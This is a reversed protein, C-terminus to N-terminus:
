QRQTTRRDLYKVMTDRFKPRVGNKFDEDTEELGTANLISEWSVMSMNRFQAMDQYMDFIGKENEKLLEMITGLPVGDAITQEDTIMDNLDAATLELNKYYEKMKSNRCSMGIIDNLTKLEENLSQQYEEKAIRESEQSAIKFIRDYVKLLKTYKRNAASASTATPLGDMTSLMDMHYPLVKTFVSTRVVYQKRETELAIMRITLAVHVAIRKFTLCTLATSVVMTSLVLEDGSYYDDPNVLKMLAHLPDIDDFSALKDRVSAPVDTKNLRVRESLLNAFRQDEFLIGRIMDRQQIMTPFGRARMTLVAMLTLLTPVRM